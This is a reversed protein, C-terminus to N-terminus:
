CGGKKARALVARANGMAAIAREAQTESPPMEDAKLLEQLAAVLEDVLSPELDSKVPSVQAVTETCTVERSCDDCVNINDCRHGKWQNGCM